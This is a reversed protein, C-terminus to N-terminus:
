SDYYTVSWTLTTGAPVTGTYFSITKNPASPSNFPYDNGFFQAFTKPVGATLQGILNLGGGNSATVFISSVGTTSSLTFTMSEVVGSCLPIQYDNWNSGITVPAPSVTTTDAQNYSKGGTILDSVLTLPASEVAGNITVTGFSYTAPQDGSEVLNVASSNNITINNAYTGYSNGTFHFVDGTTNGEFTSNVTLGTITTGRSWSELFIISSDYADNATCNTVSLGDDQWGSVLRGGSSTLKDLTGSCGTVTVDQSDTINAMITFTGTLNSVTVNRAMSLWLNADPTTGSVFNYGVDKYTVNQVVDTIRQISNSLSGQTINYPVAMNITVVSGTNATVQCVEAWNPQSSDNPDTGLQVFVTDGPILVDTSIAVNFSTQGATVTQTWTYDTSALPSSYYVTENEPYASTDLLLTAGNGEVNIPRNITLGTDLLYTKGSDLELTAGDPTANIANQIATSDNTTGNGVAGFSSVDVNAPATCTLVSDPIVQKSIGPGQYSVTLEQGGAAQFYEINISHTGATLNVSGTHEKYSHEGDNDVVMSGDISIESGDDSAAYFYYTGTTPLTIFGNWDFGYDTDVLRISLDANHTVGSKVATLTSFNPLETWSGEYFGYDLGAVTSLLTRSELEEIAYHRRSTSRRM